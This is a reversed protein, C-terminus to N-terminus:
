VTKKFEREFIGYALDGLTEGLMETFMKYSNSYSEDNVFNSVLTQMKAQIEERNEEITEKAIDTYSTPLQYDKMNKILSSVKTKLEQAHFDFNLETGYQLVAQLAGQGIYFDLNSKAHPNDGKLSNAFHNYAVNKAVDKLEDESLYKSLIELDKVETMIERKTKCIYHNNKIRAFM